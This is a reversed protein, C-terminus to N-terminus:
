KKGEMETRIRIANGHATLGEADAFAAVDAAALDFAKRSYSIVSQRKVFDYVGLPSFFRATGSTPLTHNSGAYYDGVPEPSYSGLFIAGANRIDDLLSIPDKTCVELHEPAIANSIEIAEDMNGAIIIAGYDEISKSAIEARELRGLQIKVEEAVKYALEKSVTVLISSALRDHEAQSLLDAAVYAPNASEDAIVLIESPGAIMDIGCVGFVQKKATAVYINGPGVIKDVRPVTETGYAMAAIAQAGGIKFARDVGAFRACALVLPNMKGDKGPPSCLIVEKVGAIKAPIVDMLVTSPLPASGAPAYVGVKSLPVVKQGLVIGNEKTFFWSNERQKEHYARINEAARLIVEILGEDVSSIAEDLEEATIELSELKVGDFRETYELLAEDGHEMVDRIIGSVTDDVNKQGELSRKKLSEFLGALDDKGCEYIKM